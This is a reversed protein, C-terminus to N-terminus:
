PSGPAAWRVSPPPLAAPLPKTTPHPRPRGAHVPGLFLFFVGSLLGFALQTALGAAFTRGTFLSLVILPSGDQHMKSRPQVLFVTLVLRGAAMTAFRWTPWDHEGGVTLPLTIMLPGLASLVM